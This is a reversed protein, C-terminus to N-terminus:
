ENPLGGTRPGTTHCEADICTLGLCGFSLTWQDVLGCSTGRGFQQASCQAIRCLGVPDSGENLSLRSAFVDSALNSLGKVALGLVLDIRLETGRVDHAVDKATRETIDAFRFFFV